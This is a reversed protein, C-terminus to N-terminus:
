VSATDGEVPLWVRMTSPGRNAWSHYPLLTVSETESSIEPAGVGFPWDHDAVTLRRIGISVVGDVDHLEGTARLEDVSDANPVDTSELCLVLPGREVALQGRLADIRPDPTTWRAEVPLTLVIEDGVTFARRIGVTGPAVESSEGDVQLVAGSQAWAPVRLSLEWEGAPSDTVVVRIAGDSPYNTEVRLAVPGSALVASVDGEAYQHLQVGDATSTAVYSGLSALTRAVNTPCCSVDFWPARLSSSARPSPEDEPPTSGPERQHLTNTY